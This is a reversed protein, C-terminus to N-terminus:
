ETNPDWRRDELEVSGQKTEELGPLGKREHDKASEDSKTSPNLESINTRPFFVKILVTFFTLVLSFKGVVFGLSRVFLCSLWFGVFRAVWHALLCVLLCSFWFGIFRAVRLWFGCVGMALQSYKALAFSNM